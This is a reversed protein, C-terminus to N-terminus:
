RSERAEHCFQHYEITQGYQQWDAQVWDGAPVLDTCSPPAVPWEWDHSDDEDQDYVATGQPPTHFQRAFAYPHEERPLSWARWLSVYTNLLAILLRM